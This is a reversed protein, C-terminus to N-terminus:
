QSIEHWSLTEYESAALPFTPPPGYLLNGDYIINRTTYGTNDTYAFGYRLATVIMGNLTLSTRKYQTGCNSGYYYRGTRGNQAVLAADIRMTDDSQLGVNINGQSILGIVDKGDYNTYLLNTNVTISPENAAVDPFVGAAITLRANNIQGDVWVDDEFFMVGNSPFPYNAVFSQNQISWTGWGNQTLQDTCQNPAALLKTVVYLDFTGNTKLIVHYGYAASGHYQSPGFETGVSQALTQLQQLNITLGTFDVAPVPFQRGAIFIDSRNPMNAPPTPDVNGQSTYVGFQTTGYDPDVYQSVASTVLNHAIGNFHVGKNSHIPGFVETGSGFYVNDNLVVAYKALSPIALVTDITKSVAPNATVTGTSKIEVKTSGILPPIIKLSYFGIVNGNRDNFAHVYPGQQGTGDTFDNQAHALHWRYYDIGAEAIQFAQEKDSMSQINRLMATGWNVLGIAMTVVIASFVLVSILIDGDNKRIKAIEKM